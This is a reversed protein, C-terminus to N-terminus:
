NKEYKSLRYSEDTSKQAYLFFKAIIKYKFGIGSKVIARNAPLNCIQLITPAMVKLQYKRSKAM